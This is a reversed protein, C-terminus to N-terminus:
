RLAEDYIEDFCAEGIRGPRGNPMGLYRAVVKIQMEDKEFSIRKKTPGLKPPLPLNPRYQSSSGFTPTQSFKLGQSLSKLEDLSYMSGTQIHAKSDEENGKWKNTFDIFIKMGERMKNKMQLYLRSSSDVGRKTTTTPLKSADTARFEVIGAIAIFQTHYRPVRAEGWGTLETKDCHLVARDNCLVTWGANETSYQPADLNADLEDEKPTPRTFGVTAFFSVGDDEGKFIFPTICPKRTPQSHDYVIKTTRPVIDKNNVTVQFGKDIIYAYHTSITRCLEAEFAERGEGFRKAIGDHLSSVVIKTGNHPLVNEAEHVPINWNEEDKIWDTDIEVQYQEDHHRTIIKCDTGLKFIARKMGIGYVGVSGPIFPEEPKREQTRGMRFAYNHLEWPIGGCNDTISFSQHDFKINANFGEYPPEKTEKSSRLVGDICNDLLDLIADELKIDRTLMSVFFGKVPSANVSNGIPM